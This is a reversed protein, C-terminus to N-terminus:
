WPACNVREMCSAHHVEAGGRACGRSRRSGDGEGFGHQGLGAAGGGGDGDLVAAPGEVMRFEFPGAASHCCPQMRGSNAGAVRDGYVQGAGPLQDADHEADAAGSGGDDGEVPEARGVPLAVDEVVRSGDGDDVVAPM